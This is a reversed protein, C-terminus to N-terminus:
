EFIMGTSAALQLVKGNRLISYVGAVSAINDLDVENVIALDLKKINKKLIQAEEAIRDLIEDISAGGKLKKDFDYTYDNFFRKVKNLNTIKNLEYELAKIMSQNDADNKVEKFMEIAFDKKTNDKLIDTLNQVILERNLKTDDNMYTLVLDRVKEISESEGGSITFNELPKYIDLISKILKVYGNKQLYNKNEEEEKQEGLRYLLQLCKLFVSLRNRLNTISSSSIDISM